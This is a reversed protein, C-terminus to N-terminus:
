RRSRSQVVPAEPQSWAEGRARPRAKKMPPWIKRVRESQKDHREHEYRDDATRRVDAVAGGHPPDAALREPEIQERRRDRDRESAAPKSIPGPVPMSGPATRAFVRDALRRRQAVRDDIDKRAIGYRRHRVPLHQLDDHERQQETDGHRMGTLGPARTFLRKSSKLSTMMFSM